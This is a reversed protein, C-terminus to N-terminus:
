VALGDALAVAIGHKWEGEPCLIIVKLDPIEKV